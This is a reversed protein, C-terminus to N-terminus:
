RQTADEERRLELHVPTCSDYSGNDVSNAFLKAIGDNEGGTTLSIVINQKAVAVPPTQDVITVTVTDYGERGCCDKAVYYFDHIGKPAGVATWKKSIPDQIMTVGAPGRVEYTLNPDCEDHLISPPPFTFNSACAWPDVSTLVDSGVIKPGNISKLEIIQICPDITGGCWDMVSWTRIIKKSAHCTSGCAYHIQDSSSTIFKCVNELKGYRKIVAGSATTDFAVRGDLTRYFPYAAKLAVTDKTIQNTGPTAAFVYDYIAEPTSGASCSIVVYNDPCEWRDASLNEMFITDTCTGKMGGCDTYTWHRAIFGGCDKRRDEIVLVSDTFGCNDSITPRRLILTSRINSNFYPRADACEVTESPQCTVTPVLKDELLFTGWCRNGTNRAYEYTHVKGVLLKIVAKSLIQNQGFNKPNPGLVLRGSVTDLNQLYLSGNHPKFRLSDTNPDITGGEMFKDLEIPLRCNEDVSINIRDNCALSQAHISYVGTTLLFFLLSLLKSNFAPIGKCQTLLDKKVM